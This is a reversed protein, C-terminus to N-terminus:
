FKMTGIRSAGLLAGELVTPEIDQGFSVRVDQLGAVYSFFTDGNERAQHSADTYRFNSARELTILKSDVAVTITSSDGSDDITMKNLYGTFIEIPTTTDRTGFYIRCVRRQYDESLAMSVIESPMGSLSISVTKASIDGVEELGSISLLHGSGTYTQSSITKDGYGTWLRIPSGDLVFEVAFYPEVEASTLATLLNSNITRSM